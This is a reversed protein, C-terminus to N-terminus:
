KMKKSKKSKTRKSKKLTTQKSKTPKSKKKGGKQAGGQSFSKTVAAQKVLDVSKKLEELEKNLKELEESYLERRILPYLQYALKHYEIETQKQEVPTGDKLRKELDELQQQQPQQQQQQQQQEKTSGTQEWDATLASNAQAAAAAQEGPGMMEYNQPKKEFLGQFWDM